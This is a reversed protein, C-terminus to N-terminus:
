IKLQLELIRLHIKIIKPPHTEDFTSSQFINYSEVEGSLGLILISETPYTATYYKQMEYQSGSAQLYMKFSDHRFSCVKRSVKGLHAVKNM